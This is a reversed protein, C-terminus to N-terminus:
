LKEAELESRREWEITCKKRQADKLVVSSSILFVSAWPTFQKQVANLSDYMYPVYWIYYTIAHAHSHVCVPAKFYIEMGSGWFIMLLSASASIGGWRESHNPTLNQKWSAPWGQTHMCFHRTPSVLCRTLTYFCFDYGWAYVPLYIFM